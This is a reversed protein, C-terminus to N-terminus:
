KRATYKVDFLLLLIRTTPFLTFRKQKRLKSEPPRQLVVSKLNYTMSQEDNCHQM